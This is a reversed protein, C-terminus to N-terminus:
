RLTPWRDAPLPPVAAWLSTSALTSVRAHFYVRAHLGFRSTFLPHLVGATVDISVNFNVGTSTRHVFGTPAPAAYSAAPAPAIYDVVSAPADYVAPGPSTYEVVPSKAPM